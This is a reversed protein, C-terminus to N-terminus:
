QAAEAMQKARRKENDTKLQGCAALIDRGRPWRIPAGIGHDEIVKAFALIQEKPSCEYPSNPWPNFPIVNVVAPLGRILEAVQKAHDLSDNVDKLMVYEFTIKNNNHSPFKRLAAMLDALPYQRNAPVLQSRFLPPSSPAMSFDFM